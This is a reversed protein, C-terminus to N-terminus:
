EKIVQSTGSLMFHKEAPNGKYYIRSDGSGLVYITQLPNVWAKSTGSVVIDVENANLGYGYVRSDGSATGYFSLTEGTVTLKSTGSLDFASNIGTGNLKCIATGSLVTRLVSPQGGFGDITFDSAGSAIISVLHPMTITFDIRYRNHKFKNYRIDLTEGNGITMQLDALDNACGRAKISFNAGKVINVKFTEGATIRSFDVLNFIKETSSPCEQKEKECSFLLVSLATFLIWKKM